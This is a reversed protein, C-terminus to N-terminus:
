TMEEPGTRAMDRGLEVLQPMASGLSHELSKTWLFYRHIPYDMDVGMGGHLHQTATAIRAGAEAAWFKAVVVDRSAAREESLKWAASWLTWRMAELDIYCDACRHQVAPLAGLPAGFQVRQKLYDTTMELARASVGAQLAALGVRARERTWAIIGDGRLVQDSPVRVGELRLEFLPQKRSTRGRTSGFGPSEPDVLVLAEGELLEVPVVVRDALHVAEVNTLRGSLLWADGDRIAEIRDGETFAGTLIVEGRALPPLWRERQTESGFRAIPLGGLVLASWAPVPAVARGVEELLLCLEFFGMGMGGQAEPMALGLLNAAALCRWTERDFGDAEAEATKIRELTVEAALIERTLGRLATQEETFSFDM